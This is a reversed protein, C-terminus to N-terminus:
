DHRFDKFIRFLHLIAPFLADMSEQAGKTSGPLCLVLTNDLVGALGRSLMAYPTRKQGYQRAAEMIGPIERDLLPAVAEPTIDRSSLGTGGTFVVLDIESACNKKLAYQIEKTEDPIITYNEISIQHNKLKKIIAKGAKDTKKGASVSDSCVVVTAKLDNRFCDKFDSKGGRKKILKITHIEINKDIPKLMDYLTLAVVSAGHMAEVEVGTKYISKIEIQIEIEREKIDYSIHTYEIPLPHCDPILQATKKVALLGAARAIELVNGKPVQHNKIAEVTAQSGVKLTAIACAYRQTSIKHTIDIM